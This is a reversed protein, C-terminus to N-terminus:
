YPYYNLGDGANVSLQRRPAQLGFPLQPLFQPPMSQVGSMAPQALPNIDRRMYQNGMKALNFINAFPNQSAGQGAAAQAGQQGQMMQAGMLGGLAQGVGGSINQLGSGILAAKTRAKDQFPQMKDVEWKRNQYSAMVGLSRRLNSERRIADGAEAEMLGRSAINANMQISALGNLIQNPNTAARNLGYGANASNQALRNEAYAVGPMRANLGMRSMALEEQAAAPIEYEPRKPKMLAGGILQGIGLAGQIAGPIAFAALPLM